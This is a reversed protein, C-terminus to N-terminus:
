HAQFVAASHSTMKARARLQQAQLDIAQVCGSDGVPYALPITFYGMGCGIGAVPKGVRVRQSLM